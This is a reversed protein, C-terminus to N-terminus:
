SLGKVDIIYFSNRKFIYGTPGHFLEILLLVKLQSLISIQDRYGVHHFFLILQWLNIESRWMNCGSVYMCVWVWLCMPVCVPVCVCVQVYVCVSLCTYEKILIKILYIYNIHCIIWCSLASKLIKSYLMILIKWKFNHM